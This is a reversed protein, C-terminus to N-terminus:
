ITRMSSMSAQRLQRFRKSMGDECDTTNMQSNWPRSKMTVADSFELRAPPLHGRPTTARRYRGIAGLLFEPSM